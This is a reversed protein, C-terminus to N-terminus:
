NMTNHENREFYSLLIVGCTQFEFYKRCSYNIVSCNIIEYHMTDYHMVRINCLIKMPVMIPCLFHAGYHMVCLAYTKSPGNHMLVHGFYPISSGGGYFCPWGWAVQAVTCHINDVLARVRYRLQRSTPHAISDAGDTVVM